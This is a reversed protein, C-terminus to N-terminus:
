ARSREARSVANSARAEVLAQDAYTEAASLLATLADIAAEVAKADEWAMADPHKTPITDGDFARLAELLYYSASDLADHAKEARKRFRVLQATSARKYAM